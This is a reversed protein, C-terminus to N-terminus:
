PDLRSSEPCEVLLAHSVLITSRSRGPLPGVVGFCIPGLHSRDIVGFRACAVGTKFVPSPAVVGGSFM